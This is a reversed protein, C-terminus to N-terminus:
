TGIYRYNNINEDKNIGIANYSAYVLSDLCWSESWKNFWLVGELDSCAKHNKKKGKKKPLTILTSLPTFIPCSFFAPSM